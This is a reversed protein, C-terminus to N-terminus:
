RPQCAPHNPNAADWSDWLYSLDCTCWAPVIPYSMGFECPVHSGHCCDLPHPLSKTSVKYPKKRLSPLIPNSSFPKAQSGLKFLFRYMVSSWRRINMTRTRMNWDGTCNTLRQMKQIAVPLIMSYNGHSLLWILTSLAVPNPIRDTYIHHPLLLIRHRNKIKHYWLYMSIGWIRTEEPRVLWDM